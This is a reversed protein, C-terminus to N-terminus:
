GGGIAHIIEVKDGEVIFTEAHKSRPIISENIEVAIRKGTLGSLELLELISLEHDYTQSEGNISVQM